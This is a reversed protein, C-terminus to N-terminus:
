DFEKVKRFLSNLFRIEDKCSEELSKELQVSQYVHDFM